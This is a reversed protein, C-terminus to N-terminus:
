LGKSNDTPATQTTAVNAASAGTLAPDAPPVTLSKLKTVKVGVAGQTQLNEVIGGGMTIAQRMNEADGIAEITFPAAIPVWNIQIAPGVCRIPTTGTIRIPRGSAGSVAIADAKVARLENVVQMVDYDHVLGPLPLSPNGGAQSAQPSDSLVIRIGEGTMPTLCAQAQLGKIQATLANIQAGSLGSKSKLDAVTKALTDREAQAKKVNAIAESRSKDAIQRQLSDSKVKDDRSKEMNKISRVQVAALGGFVFCIGTITGLLSRLSRKRARTLPVATSTEPTSDTSTRASTLPSANM